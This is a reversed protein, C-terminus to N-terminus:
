ELNTTDTDALLMADLTNVKSSDYQTLDPSLYDFRWKENAEVVGDLTIDVGLVIRRMDAGLQTQFIFDTEGRM